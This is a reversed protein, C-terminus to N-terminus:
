VEKEWLTEGLLQEFISIWLRLSIRGNAMLNVANTSRNIMKAFDSQSIGKQQLIEKLNNEYRKITKAM